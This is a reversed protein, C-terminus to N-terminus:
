LILQILYPHSKPYSEDHLLIAIWRCVQSAMYCTINGFNLSPVPTSINENWLLIIKPEIGEDGGGDSWGQNLGEDNIM